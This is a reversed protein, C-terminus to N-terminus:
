AELGAQAQQTHSLISPGMCALLRDFACGIDGGGESGNLGITVAEELAAAAASIEAFGFVGGAGALGHAIDRIETLAARSVTKDQLASRRDALRAADVRVRQLFITRKSDLWDDPPRFYHRLSAALTLPDFPKRIVGAAGFSRFLDIERSQARATMFVVPIDATRPDGRFRALTAPGDMEPMMVDLLVIDPPWEAAVALAENGSACSRSVLGSDLALSGEVVERIDPDDDVHLVRLATM